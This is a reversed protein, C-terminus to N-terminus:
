IQAHQEESFAPVKESIAIKKMEEILPDIRVPIDVLSGWEVDFGLAPVFHGDGLAFRSVQRPEDRDFGSDGVRFRQYDAYLLRWVPLSIPLTLAWAPLTKWSMKQEPCLLVLHDRNRSLHAQWPIAAFWLLPHRATEMSPIGSVEHSEAWRKPTRALILLSDQAMSGFASSPYQAVGFHRGALRASLTWSLGRNDAHNLGERAQQRRLWQQADLVASAVYLSLTEDDAREINWM